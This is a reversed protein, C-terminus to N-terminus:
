SPLPFSRPLVLLQSSGDGAVACRPIEKIVFLPPATRLNLELFYSYRPGARVRMSWEASSLAAASYREIGPDHPPHASRLGLFRLGTLTMVACSRWQRPPAADVLIGVM